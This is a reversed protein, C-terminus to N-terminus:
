ILAKAANKRLLIVGTGTLVVGLAMAASFEKLSLTEKMLIPILRGAEEPYKMVFMSVANNVFHLFMSTYISGTKIVIYAFAAGLMATPLLKILSMHFAGFVIASILVPWVLANKTKKAGATDSTGHNVFYSRLSGFLFGRFMIEECIAPMFAIVLLLLPLPQEIIPGFAENLNQTSGPFLQMLITSLCLMLCYVGLYLLISGPLAGLHPRRMSFLTRIDSKMYWVVLLPVSLILLQQVATGAFGLRVSAASGVYLILLLLVTVSIIIDGIDPVTGRSIDSRKQFLRFRCFGDSFLIDESNYMKALIWIILVSCGFNVSITIGALAIDFQQAIIQKVMLTVNVIPIMATRYDLKVSPIMGVMSAFMIILLVPTVYNNAEKFSKAFVCFCMCVSSALLATVILTILLVPIATLVASLSFGPMESALEDSIGYMMFLVSGGLSVVSLIATVCALIAVSIYKSLIMQFNTVPLTLLTELTGREKEGATADISPYIAGLLITVILMMGISGGIDMGMSESLSANDESEYIVPYLFSETLGESALNSVLLEERYIELLKEVARQTYQSSQSTSTYSIKIHETGNEDTDIELWVDTDKQVQEEEGGEAPLFALELELEDEDRNAEYLSHLSEALRAYESRYGVTHQGGEESKMFTSIGITMGILILPYLLVPVVVMMVLTKKDRLIDLLEKRILTRVKRM